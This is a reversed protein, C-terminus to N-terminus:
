NKTIGTLHTLFTKLSTESIKSQLMLTQGFAETIINYGKETGNTTEFTIVEYKGITKQVVPITETGNIIKGNLASVWDKFSSVTKGNKELPHLTIVGIIDQEVYFGYSDVRPDELPQIAEEDFTFSLPKKTQAIEPTSTSVTNGVQIPEIKQLHTVRSQNWFILGSLIIVGLILCGVVVFIQKPIKKM